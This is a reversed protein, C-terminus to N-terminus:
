LLAAISRIIDVQILLSIAARITIVERNKMELPILFSEGVFSIVFYLGYYLFRDVGSVFLTIVFPIHILPFAAIFSVLKSDTLEEEVTQSQLDFLLKQIKHPSTIEFAFYLIHIISFLLITILM